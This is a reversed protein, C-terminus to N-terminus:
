MVRRRTNESGIVDQGGGFGQSEKGMAGQGIKGRDSGMM